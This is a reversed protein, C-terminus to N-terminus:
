PTGKQHSAADLRFGRLRPLVSALDVAAGQGFGFYLERFLAFLREYGDRRDHRPAFVRTPPCLVQQAAQFTAFAGAAVAAAVCSGTGTPSTAPVHLERGLVDAYIQNLLDNKQPIGGANLIRATQTGGSEIRETIIRVHMAMGEIAAHMEDAASHNLDWGLTVAGLDSRVLVTRDGNDWNLRMLGSGGPPMSDLGQCLTAVDSGARRAIAEFVDGTASQGAEIGTWGPLVSGPVVGCLGPVPQFGDPAMAIICTSTGVVNVIDGPMAGAGLADWHADFAGVPIPIGPKLGLKTAWQPSLHGAIADSTLFRGHLKENIGDLLPDVRSLFDQSPLGGWKAGYMWKHGAACISRPIDEINEIGCLTTAVMDCHELATALRPRLDPNHRLFHLLKAYGWEHSYTGGCWELAELSEARALATIEAAEAHARHDCWLYYDALPQLDADVMVVSSGTTDCALAAVRDGDIGAQAVAQYMAHALARMHDAHAQAGLLPDAPSRKLPYGASASALTAGSGTEMLTVRVSLTGFDVGAVIM